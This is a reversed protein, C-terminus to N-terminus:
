PQLKKGCYICFDNNGKPLQKGCNSCNTLQAQTNLHKKQCDDCVFGPAWNQLPPRFGHAACFNDRNCVSCKFGLKRPTYTPTSCIPCFRGSQADELAESRARSAKRSEKVKSYVQTVLSAFAGSFITTGLGIVTYGTSIYDPDEVLTPYSHGGITYTSWVYSKPGFFIGYIGVVLLFAGLLTFVVLISIVITTTRKGM